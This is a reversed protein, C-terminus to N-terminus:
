SAIGRMFDQLFPGPQSLRLGFRHAAATFHKLNFSILADAQANVAAELVLEDAPDRCQPRWLFHIPVPEVLSALADLFVPIDEAVLGAAEIHEQRGCVSEYEIFLSASAALRIQNRRALRVLEASAGSPSRLAAVVVDTDLVIKM